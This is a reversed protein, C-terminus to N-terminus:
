DLTLVVITDRLTVGLVTMMSGTMALRAWNARVVITCIMKGTILMPNAGKRM